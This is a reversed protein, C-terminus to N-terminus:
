EASHLAGGGYAGARSAVHDAFRAPDKSARHKASQVVFISPVPYRSLFMFSVFELRSMGWKPSCLAAFEGNTRSQMRSADDRARSHYYWGLLHTPFRM